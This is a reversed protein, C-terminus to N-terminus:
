VTDWSSERGMRVGSCIFTHSQVKCDPGVTVDRQVEVFPGIRTRAGIECGYLNTFPHRRARGSRSM